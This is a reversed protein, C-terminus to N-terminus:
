YIKNIKELRQHLIWEEDTVRKGSICYYSTWLEENKIFNLQIGHKVGNNYNYKCGLNGNMHYFLQEGHKMGNNYIHKCGLNGNMHYSLQEGHQEDNHKLYRRVWWLRGSGNYYKEKTYTIDM